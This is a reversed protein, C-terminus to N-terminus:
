FLLKGGFYAAAAGVLFGGVYCAGVALTIDGGSILDLEEDTLELSALNPKQPINLYIISSDSQDEISIKADDQTFVDKGIYKEITGKPNSILQEKFEFSEWAKHILEIIIEQGKKQQELTANM